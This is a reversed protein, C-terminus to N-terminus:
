IYKQGAPHTNPQTPQLATFLGHAYQQGWFDEMVYFLRCPVQWPPKWKQFNRFPLGFLPVDQKGLISHGSPLASEVSPTSPISPAGGAFGTAPTVLGLRQTEFTQQGQPNIFPIYIYTYIYIYQHINIFQKSESCGIIGLQQFDALAQTHAEVVWYLLHHNWHTQTHTHTSFTWKVKNPALYLPISCVQKFM